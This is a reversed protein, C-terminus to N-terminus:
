PFLQPESAATWDPYKRMITNFHESALFNDLWQQVATYGSHQFWHPDVAAFQRVFPLIAADTLSFDAGSLQAHQQLRGNLIALFKSGQQRYYALPYDPYRDAYKYRDLFYKFEGDNQAILAPDALRLWHAPDQQGLAWHMIDLSEELVIGDPLHLVPVTAKPSLALLEPPKNKLAVERLETRIGSYALALRARMAYPCRRFSYLIPLTASM